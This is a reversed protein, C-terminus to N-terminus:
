MIYVHQTTDSTLTHHPHICTHIYMGHTQWSQIHYLQLLGLLCAFLAFLCECVPSGADVPWGIVASRMDRVSPEDLSTELVARQSAREAKERRSGV